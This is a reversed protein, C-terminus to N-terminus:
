ADQAVDHQGVERLVEAVADDVAVEGDPGHLTALLRILATAADPVPGGFIGSHLAHDLTRVTVTAQVMGRLTTTLSPTGVAINGSDAIVIADADLKDAHKELITPLSESGIEEEGEIFVNLGVPLDGGFARIAAIHAMVGAKDDAIGRAYIRGDRETPEFPPSHWAAPDGEPQVDHHAYLLVTPAGEPAPHHAIVAPAGGESVIRVDGFGAEALLKAVADASRSVEDRRQPDGWVSQIRVLDELDTRVSPLVDRVRQVLDTM